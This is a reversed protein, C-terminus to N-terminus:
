RRLSEGGGGWENEHMKMKLVLCIAFLFLIYQLYQRYVLELFNRYQEEKMRFGQNTLIMDRYPKILMQTLGGGENEHMKMKRVLCIEILFFIYQPYQRYVTELFQRYQEEKLHFGQYTLVMDRYTKILMQTLGGGENEHMKMKQALCIELLFFIQQLYQRYVAEVFQKYQEEKLHFGQDTLIM